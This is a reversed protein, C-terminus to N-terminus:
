NGGIKKEEIGIGVVPKGADLEGFHSCVSRAIVIDRFRVATDGGSPWTRAALLDYKAAGGDDLGRM